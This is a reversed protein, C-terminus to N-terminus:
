KGVNFTKDNKNRLIEISANYGDFYLREYGNKQCFELLKILESVSYTAVEDTIDLSNEKIFQEKM